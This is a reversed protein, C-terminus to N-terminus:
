KTLQLYVKYIYIPHYLQINFATQCGAQKYHEFIIDRRDKYFYVYM